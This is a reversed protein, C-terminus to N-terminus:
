ERLSDLRQRLELGLQQVNEEDLITLHDGEVWSIELDPICDRWGYDEPYHDHIRWIEKGRFLVANGLYPKPCYKGLAKVFTGFLLKEREEPTRKLQRNIDSSQEENRARYNQIRQQIYPIVGDEYVLYLHDIISLSREKLDPTFTDLLGLFSVKEGDDELMQAMEFAVMGGGSYGLFQYPGKPQVQKIAEIYLSAMEEITELPAKLGDVGQAQLGFMTQETGLLKSLSYFNLVNGGGGHVCFLPNQGNGKQIKVLPTWNSTATSSAPLSPSLIKYPSDAPVALQIKQSLEAITPTEFLTAITLNVGFDQHILSFLRVATLSHGGLDFFNDNIGVEPLDLVDKWHEALQAEFQNTPRVLEAERSITSAADPEPLARRNIKGNPTKPFEQLIQFVAPVMYDPLKSKVTEHLISSTLDAGQNPIVYGVLTQEGKLQHLVVVAESVLDNERIAAEVEGIEIRFGRIKVQHDSRGLYEIQGEPLWRGLDGSKYIRNGEIGSFPDPFFREHTLDDRGFYGRSLGVGGVYIEGPVGVPVPEMQKDLVYVQMNDIPKGIPITECEVGWRDDYWTADLTVESMGYFNLLVAHPMERRFLDALDRSIGEGSFTWYLLHPLRQALDPYTEILIRIYSPVLVIRQIKYQNLVKIFNHGNKVVEDPILVLPTGKLLPGWIEWLHDVFNLTTKQCCIEEPGLPYKSWQWQCRNLLGRHHGQVGKPRGTSGSTFTVFLSNEPQTRNPPSTKPYYDTKVEDVTLFTKQSGDYQAVVDGTTLVLDVGADQMILELREQPYNPDLPVYAGGAKVTALLAVIMEFSRHISIGVPVEVEVGLEILKHALQNSREFLTQYSMEQGDFILATANPTKIAQEDFMAHVTTSEPFPAQTQNWDHLITQREIASLMSIKGLPQDLDRAIEHLFTEFGHIRHEITQKFFIDTNYECDIELTKNTDTLNLFIDWASSKKAPLAAKMRLDNIPEVVMSRDFNFAVDAVPTRSLDTPPELSRIIEGLACPQNERSELLQDQVRVLYEGFPIEASPQTRVPMYHVLFGTTTPLNYLTQGAMPVGVILDEQQSLRFLYSKFAALMFAFFTVGKGSAAQRLQDVLNSPLVHNYVDGQYSKVDPRPQDAPLQIPDPLPSLQDVWYNLNAQGQVSDAVKSHASVFEKYSGIQSDDFQAGTIAAHYRAHIEDLIIGSSWGDTIAHHAVYLLTHKHSNTRILCSRVVPGDTLNFPRTSESEIIKVALSDRDPNA